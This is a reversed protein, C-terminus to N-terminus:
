SLIKNMHNIFKEESFHKNYNKKATKSCSLYFDKDLRLKKALKKAKELDGFDM